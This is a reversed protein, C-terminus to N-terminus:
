HMKSDLPVVKNKKKLVFLGFIFNKSHFHVWFNVSKLMNFGTNQGNQPWFLRNRSNKLTTKSNNLIHKSMTKPRLLGVKPHIKLEFLQYIVWFISIESWFNAWKQRKWPDNKVMKPTLRSKSTSLLCNKGLVCNEATSSVGFLPFDPGRAQCLTDDLDVKTM